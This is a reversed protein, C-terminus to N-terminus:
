KYWLARRVAPAQLPMLYYVMYGLADLVHDYGQTKDPEGKPDYRQHELAEVLQPCRQVNVALRGDAFRANVCVVRDRVAPNRKRYRVNFGARRLLAIDSRSADTTTRSSGSADPYVNIAHGQYRELIADIMTPTDLYGVLEDVVLLREGDRVAVVAAMKGVNFDMGIHVPEGHRLVRDTACRERDFSSYVTGSTLNCWEGEIYARALQPPYDSLLADVYDDPLHPNSTTSARVFQYEDSPREKHWRRYTFGFGQDPTTYCYVRNEHGDIQQRNRAMIRLWVDEAKEPTTNAEIEDVHSRFVEYGIIRKPNDISRFILQRDGISLVLESRNLTYQVGAQQLMQEVRPIVNLKLQDYTDSYIAVRSEPALFLDRLACVVMTHTKGSGYGGVFLPYRCDLAFFRSQPETLDIRLM